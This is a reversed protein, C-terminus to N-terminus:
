DNSLTMQVRKMLETALFPKRLVQDSPLSLEYWYGTMFLVRTEPHVATLNKALKLGDLLPMAYDTILLDIKGAHRAAWSLAESGNPLDVVKFGNLRLYASVFGRVADDDEAVLVLKGDQAESVRTRCHVHPALRPGRDWPRVLISDRRSSIRITVSPRSHM